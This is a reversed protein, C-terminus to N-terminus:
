QQKQFNLVQQQEKRNPITPLIGSLGLCVIVSTLWYYFSERSISSLLQDLAGGAGGTITYTPVNRGKTGRNITMLLM